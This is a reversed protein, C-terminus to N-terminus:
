DSYNDTEFDAITVNEIDSSCATRVISFLFLATLRLTYMM